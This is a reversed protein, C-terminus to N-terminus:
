SISTMYFYFHKTIMNVLLNYNSYIIAYSLKVIYDNKNHRKFVLHQPLCKTGISMLYSCVPLFQLILLKM